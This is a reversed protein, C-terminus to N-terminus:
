YVGWLDDWDEETTAEGKDKVSSGKDIIEDGVNIDLEADEEESDDGCFKEQDEHITEYDAQESEDDEPTHDKDCGSDSASDGDEVVQNQTGKDPKPQSFKRKNTSKIIMLATRSTVSYRNLIGSGRM